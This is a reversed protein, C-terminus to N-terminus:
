RLRATTQRLIELRNIDATRFCRVTKYLNIEKNECFLKSATTQSTVASIAPILITWTFCLLSHRCLM